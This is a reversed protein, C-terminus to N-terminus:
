EENRSFRSYRCHCHDQETKPSTSVAATTTDADDVITANIKVRNLEHHSYPTANLDPSVKTLQKNCIVYM